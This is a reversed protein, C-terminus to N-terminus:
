ISQPRKLLLALLEHLSGKQQTLRRGDVWTEQARAGALASGKLDLLDDQTVFFSAQKGCALTGLKDQEGLMRAPNITYTQLAEYVTLKQEDVLPEVMGLMQMFPDIDQVPADSSGCVCVKADLLMKLPVERQVVQAPLYYEYSKIYRQDVWAYGPQVTVAIDGRECVTQIAAASPFEFHDIRHLPPSQPFTSAVPAFAV